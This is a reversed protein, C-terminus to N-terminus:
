GSRRQSLSGKECTTENKEFFASRNVQEVGGIWVDDFIYTPEKLKCDENSRAARLLGEKEL